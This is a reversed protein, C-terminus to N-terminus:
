IHSLEPEVGSISDEWRDVADEEISFYQATVEGELTEHLIAGHNQTLTQVDSDSLMSNIQDHQDMLTGLYLGWWGTEADPDGSEVDPKLSFLYESAGSDFTRSDLGAKKNGTKRGLHLSNIVQKILELTRTQAEPKQDRLQLVEGMMHKLQAIVLNTDAM